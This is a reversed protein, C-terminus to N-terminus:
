SGGVADPLRREGEDQPSPGAMYGSRAHVVLNKPGRIDLPHWGLRLGPEFTILYQYRLESFLDRLATATHAPASSVRSDGGTLRVLDALTAVDTAKADAQFMGIRDSRHDMPNVVALLYVPVDIASAARAADAATIKSGTDVGDTIVLLARHRNTRDAVHRAAAATADFLSTKGWPAGALSVRRVRDLDMTFPVVEELASDFTFLAAEDSGARLNRMAAGVADRARDMNGGIGMSGSIDLLVGLSIPADGSYVDLIHRRFGSERVQFDSKGLGRVIRGRRDRVSAAVTVAEVQARFTPTPADTQPTPAQAERAAARVTADSRVVPFLEAFVVCSTCILPAAVSGISWAAIMGVTVVIRAM